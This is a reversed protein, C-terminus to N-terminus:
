LVSSIRYERTTRSEPTSSIFLAGITRLLLLFSEFASLVHANQKGLCAGLLLVFMKHTSQTCLSTNGHQYSLQGGKIYIELSWLYFYLCFLTKYELIRENWEFTHINPM